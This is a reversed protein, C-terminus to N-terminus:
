GVSRNTDRPRNRPSAPNSPVAPLSNGILYIVPPPDRGEALLRSPYIVQLQKLRRGSDASRARARRYRRAQTAIRSGKSNSMTFTWVNSPCDHVRTRILSGSGCRIARRNNMKIDPIKDDSRKLSAYSLRSLAGRTVALDPTRDKRGAGSRERRGSPLVGSQYPPSV